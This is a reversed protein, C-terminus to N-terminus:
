NLAPPAPLSTTSTGQATTVQASTPSVNGPWWAAFYGNAVTATVSSGGSLAFTIGTVESGAEGTAVDDNSSSNWNTSLGGIAGSSPPTSAVSSTSAGQGHVLGMSGGPTGAIGMGAGNSMMIQPGGSWSTGGTLCSAANAATGNVAQYAILTFPGRVDEVEAQWASSDTIFASSNNAADGSEALTVVGIACESEAAAIQGSAPPTPTPSWDAFASQVGPGATLLLVSTVTALVAASAGGVAVRFKPSRGRPHYEMRRLREFAVDPIDDVRQQLASRVDFELQSNM